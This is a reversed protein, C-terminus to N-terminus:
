KTRRETIRFGDFRKRTYTVESEEVTWRSLTHTPSTVTGANGILTLLEAKCATRAKSAEGEIAAQRREEAMLAAIRDDAELVTGPANYAHLRTILEADRVFDPSPEGESWFKACEAMIADGVAPDYDRKLIVLRNGGVLAAIYLTHIGSVLMEHQCQLEIHAPAELGYETEEWGERFALGDVNKCEVLFRRHQDRYDFSSGIRLEPIRVYETAQEIVWGNDEAAGMAISHELRTGWLTRENEAFDDAAGGRKVHFLEFRTRWPSVNFLAAVDTSTIDKAREALWAERTTFPIIERNM